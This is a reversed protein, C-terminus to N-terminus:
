TGKCLPWGVAGTPIPPIPVRLLVRVKTDHMFHVRRWFTVPLVDIHIEWRKPHTLLVEPSAKEPFFPKCMPLDFATKRDVPSLRDSSDTLPPWPDALSTSASYFPYLHYLPPRYQISQTSQTSTIRLLNIFSIIRLLNVLSIFISSPIQELL